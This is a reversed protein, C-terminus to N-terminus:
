RYIELWRGAMRSKLSDPLTTKNWIENIEVLLELMDATRGYFKVAKTKNTNSISFTQKMATIYLDRLTNLDKAAVSPSVTLKLLKTKPGNPSSVIDVFALAEKSKGKVIVYYQSDIQNLQEFFREYEVAFTDPDCVAAWSSKSAIIIDQDVKISTLKAFSNKSAM